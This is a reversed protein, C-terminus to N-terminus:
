VVSELATGIVPIVHGTGIVIQPPSYLIFPPRHVLVGPVTSLLSTTSTLTSEAFVNLVGLVAVTLIPHLTLSNLTM